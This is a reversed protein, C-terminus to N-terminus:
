DVGAGHYGNSRGIWAEVDYGEQEWFGPVPNEVLSITSLWKISKYGYMPAVYLRVPGGHQRTIPAGLMDYAVLVDNRHAEELSLSETYVGDYSTFEVARATSTPQAMDVLDGLLVGAWHVGPVVWGTVCQFPKVLETRPLSRLQEYSLTMPRKVLGGVELKYRSPPKWPYGSTVTYIRFRDAGPILAGLGSGNTSAVGSLLDGVGRQLDSGFAVGLAGAALVGLFLRRGIPSGAASRRGGGPGVLGTGALDAAVPGGAALDRGPLDTGAPAWGSGVRRSRAAEPTAGGIGEIQGRYGRETTM